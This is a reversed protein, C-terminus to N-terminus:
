LRTWKVFNLPLMASFLIFSILCASVRQVRCFGLTRASYSQKFRSSNAIKSSINTARRAAPNDCACTASRM